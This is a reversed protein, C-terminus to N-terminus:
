DILLTVKQLHRQEPDDQKQGACGQLLWPLGPSGAVTTFKQLWFMMKLSWQKWCDSQVKESKRDMVNRMLYRIMFENLWYWNKSYYNQNEEFIM